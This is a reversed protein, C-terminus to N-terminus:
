VQSEKEPHSLSRRTVPKPVNTKSGSDESISRMQEPKRRDQVDSQTQAAALFDVPQTEQKIEEQQKMLLEKSQRRRFRNHMQPTKPLAGGCSSLTQNVTIGTNPDGYYGMDQHMLMNEASHVIPRQYQNYVGSGDDSGDNYIIKPESSFGANYNKEYQVEDAELFSSNSDGFYDVHEPRTDEEETVDQFQHYQQQKINAFSGTHQSEQSNDKICEQRM